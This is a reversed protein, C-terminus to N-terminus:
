WCTKAICRAPDRLMHQKPQLVTLSTSGSVARFFDLSTGPSGFPRPVYIPSLLTLETDQRIARAQLTVVRGIGIAEIENIICAPASSACSSWYMSVERPVRIYTALPLPMASGWVAFGVGCTPVERDSYSFFLPM